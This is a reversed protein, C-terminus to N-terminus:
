IAISNLSTYIDITGSALRQLESSIYLNTLSDSSAAEMLIGITITSLWNSSGEEYYQSLLSDFLLTYSINNKECIDGIKGLIEVTQKWGIYDM